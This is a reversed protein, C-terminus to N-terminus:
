DQLFGGSQMKWLKAYLGRKRVLSNHTGQEAIKGSDMVVIRDMNRLTSLRHAIAITTRNQSLEEFSKQIAIETESDLASTAEDLVLIPSNKLFARAIAIRQRQGGSLKIGRDGVFSEYKKETTMIFKDASARKAAHRIQADTANLNGYAINERITRNFMSAEQPIFSINERLSSQKVDRIDIGDILIKGKNVDYFRMLLNVLTTKGAGSLGVLGVREGPKITLSFDRLIYKNKYKFWVNKFEIKGHTVLLDTADPKDTVTIPVMLETYAKAASSLNEIMIPISDIISGIIGMVMTYVSISYVIDALSMESHSFMYVCLIITAGFTIDWIFNPTAIAIRQWFYAYRKRNVRETRAPDLYDHERSTGAFLKVNTANSFSDVLKGALKSNADSADKSTRKIPNRLYWMFLARFVFVSIFVIAIYRNVSFLAASNILAIIFYIFANFLDFIVSDLGNAIDNIRSHIQGAMRHAWFSMSQSHVYDTFFESIKRNVKPRFIDQLWFRVLAFVSITLSLAMILVVTPMCWKMLNVGAPAQELMDVIWRQYMPWLVNDFKVVFRTLFIGLLLWGFGKCVYRFYFGFVTKPVNQINIESKKSM